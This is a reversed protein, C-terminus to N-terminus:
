KLPSGPEAALAALYDDLEMRHAKALCALAKSHAPCSGNEIRSLQRTGLGPIDAQRLGHKKRLSQIAAGYRLNFRQSRQKAKLAKHPDSLQQFQEWGLHVDAKPWYLWSGDADIEFADLEDRSMGRLPPIRAVPLHLWELNASCLELTAQAKSEAIHAQIIGLEKM